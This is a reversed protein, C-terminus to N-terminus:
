GDAREIMSQETVVMHLPVDWPQVPLAEVMQSSWALGIRRRDPLREFMRDYYGAGNGIRNLQRDFGVMPTLFVDPDVVPAQPGPEPIRLQGGATLPEGPAWACFDMRGPVDPDIRPLCLGFGREHLFDILAGTPAESGVSLYIAIRAGPPLLALVPSPLVRFSLNRVSPSLAAVQAKRRRRLETRLAARDTPLETM